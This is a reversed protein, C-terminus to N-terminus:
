AGGAWLGCLLAVAISASGFIAGCLAGWRWGSTFGSRYGCVEGQVEGLHFAECVMPPPPAICGTDRGACSTELVPRIDDSTLESDNFKPRHAHLHLIAAALTRAQGQNTFPVATM